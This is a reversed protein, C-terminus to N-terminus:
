FNKENKQNHSKQTKKITTTTKVTKKKAKKTTKVVIDTQVTEEVKKSVAILFTKTLANATKSTTPNVAGTAAAGTFAALLLTVTM